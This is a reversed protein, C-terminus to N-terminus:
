SIYKRMRRRNEDLAKAGQSPVFASAKNYLDKGMNYLSRTTKAKNLFFPCNSDIASPEAM